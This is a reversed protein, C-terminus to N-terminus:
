VEGCGNHNGQATTIERSHDGYLFYGCVSNAGTDLRKKKKKEKRSYERAVM